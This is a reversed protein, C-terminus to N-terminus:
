TKPAPLSQSDREQRNSLWWAFPIGLSVLDWLVRVLTHQQSTVQPTLLTGLQIAGVIAVLAGFYAALALPGRRRRRLILETAVGALGSITYIAPWFMNDPLLFLFLTLVVFIVALTLVVGALLLLWQRATMKRRQNPFYDDNRRRDANQRYLDGLPEKLGADVFSRRPIQSRSVLDQDQV